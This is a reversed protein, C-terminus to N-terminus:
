IRRMDCVSKYETGAPIEASVSVTGGRSIIEKIKECLKQPETNGDYLILVDCRRDAAKGSLESLRDLYVAFGAASGPKNMRKLLNDYQGGSLVASSVGNVYGRFVIGNYYGTDNIVSLDVFLKSADCGSIVFFFESVTKQWEEDGYVGRLREYAQDPPCATGILTLIREKDEDPVGLRACLLSADHGNKESIFRLLATRPEGTIGARDLAMSIFRLDSVDLANDASIIELSQQALFLVESLRVPDACGIYELGTQSIEAFAGNVTRFVSENYYLKNEGGRRNKVISLTVDPKLAM